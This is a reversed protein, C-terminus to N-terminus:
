IPAGLQPQHANITALLGSRHARVAQRTSRPSSAQRRNAYFVTAIIRFTRKKHQAAPKRTRPNFLDKAIARGELCGGERRRRQAGHETNPANRPSGVRKRGGRLRDRTLTVRRGGNEELTGDDSPRAHPPQRSRVTPAHSRPATQTEGQVLERPIRDLV